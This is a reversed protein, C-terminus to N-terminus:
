SPKGGGAAAKAKAKSGPKGSHAFACQDGLSCTGNKWDKCPQRNAPPGPTANRPVQKGQSSCWKRFHEQDEAPIVSKHDRPCDKGLKCEGVAFLYCVQKGGRPNLSSTRSREGDRKGKGPKGGKGGNAGESDGRKGGKGQATGKEKGKSKGKPPPDGGKSPPTKQGKNEHLYPCGPTNCKGNKKFQFCIGVTEAPLAPGGPGMGSSSSAGQLSRQNTLVRKRNVAAVFARELFEYTDNGDGPSARDFLDVDLKM